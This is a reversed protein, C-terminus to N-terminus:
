GARGQWLLWRILAFTLAIQAASAAVGTALAPVGTRLLSRLNVEIGMAAMSVTLLLTGADNLVAALPVQRAVSGFPRFELVPLLGLTNLTAVALFGWIFPPLLKAFSVRAKRHAALALVILFPALM